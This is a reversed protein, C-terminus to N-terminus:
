INVHGFTKANQLEDDSNFKISMYKEYNDSNNNISRILDRIKDWLEEYKKLTDKSEDTPVLMVYKNESSEEIYWNVSNIIVYSHDRM